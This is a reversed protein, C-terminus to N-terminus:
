KLTLSLIIDLAFIAFPVIAVVNFVKPHKAQLKELPPLVGYMLLLGFLGWTIVSRVCIYGNLNGWNLIVISYDWLRMHFFHDLVYGTALELLGCSVTSVLFVLWPKKRFRNTLFFIFLSGFGYIPIWPGYTTGRKAFVGDNIYVCIEEYFFGIIGAITFILLLLPILKKLSPRNM